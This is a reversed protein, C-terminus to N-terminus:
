ALHRDTSGQTLGLRRAVVQRPPRGVLHASTPRNRAFPASRVLTTPNAGFGDEYRAKTAGPSIFVGGHDEATGVVDVYKGFVIPVPQGLEIARQQSDLNSASNGEAAKKDLPPKLLGTQYPLLQLPDSIRLKITM